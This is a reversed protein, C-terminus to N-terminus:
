AIIKRSLEPRRVSDSIQKARALTIAGAVVEEPASQVASATAFGAAILALYEGRSLPVPLALLDLAKSPLGTELQQLLADTAEADPASEPVALQAIKFASHLHFRTLDATARVDGAGVRNFPNLSFGNEIDRMPVGSTWAHLMCARKARAYYCLLNEAHAQLRGVVLSGFIAGAERTWKAEGSGRKFIPTYQRDLEPLGQLLAMLAPPTLAGCPLKRLTEVLSLASRLELSSAGCARGLLTLRLMQSSDAELLGQAEMGLVLAGTEAETRSRWKPDRRAALFGAFTNALLSVVDERRVADVQLFLRILWTEQAEDTFSSTVPGPSAAVYREFLQRREFPTEALMISRGTERFGLRGARGAMNQTEGVSYDRNEWSFGHEAIIVTSAPTNIGAAVTSTAVLVRVASDPDRFAREVVAREDRNLNSSHFGVGGALTGRLAESAASSDLTPLAALTSTAPPLGLAEALYAACGEAPGRQNRFVLVKERAIPDRLLQQVLPVIVDQSSPKGRRQQIVHAQLMQRVECKGEQSITEFTGLRDLVGFELPVPRTTTVLSKCGLWEDFHNLAGMTASLTIVQPVIGRRRATRLFTLILEVVIGRNPESIFQAEDLVILGIRPLVAPSGTALGLFMEFTLLAIDYKGQIFLLREDSYDGSCRIVRLGLRSGYLATFQDYKENVIARYPLLFVAKRGETVARLSALEGVFTKGSSTPAVVLVSEGALIGHKNIADLQLANLGAPFRESWVDLLSQPLRYARLELISAEVVPRATEPFADKFRAGPCLTPITLGGEILGLLVPTQTCGIAAADARVIELVEDFATALSVTPAGTRTGARSLVTILANTLLGHRREPHEYASEDFRSATIMIRGSGGFSREDLAFSRTLPSDDLVRAPAAGSFCCDLICIASRAQTSRFMSALDAMSLTTGEYDDSATDHAVLRHDRTGHGAFALVVDDDSTASALVESLVQRIERATAQEDVLLRADLGPITDCLLAWIATADRRAGALESVQPSLHRDIGICRVRLPM